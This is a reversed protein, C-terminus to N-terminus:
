TKMAHYNLMPLVEDKTPVCLIAGLGGQLEVSGYISVKECLATNRLSEM